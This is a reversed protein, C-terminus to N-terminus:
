ARAELEPAQPRMARVRRLVDAPLDRQDAALGLSALYADLDPQEALFRLLNAPRYPLSMEPFRATELDGLPRRAAPDARLRHIAAAAVTLRAAPPWGALERRGRGFRGRAADLGRYFLSESRYLRDQPYARFARLYEEDFALARGRAEELLWHLAVNALGDDVYGGGVNSHVGSFWRQELTQGPEARRWIEPRFDYRVEDIALAQRAHRVVRPPAEGVHFSRSRSSTRAGAARFRSGLAMVTDWVGLLEVAIPQLPSLPAGGHRELERGIQDRVEASPREGRSVVYARFLRPLFYADRKRPLGASWDLFRALAQAAAAGRSFGFLYVADGTQFNSQLFGLAREVQGEFGAGWAGGLLRDAAALLRNAIGPYRALSGVGVDYYAIQEAGDRPEFPVIARSVKLVNSPKLVTHGDRRRAMSATSNWTGDLCLILRRAAM